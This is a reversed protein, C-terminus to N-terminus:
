ASELLEMPLDEMLAADFGLRRFRRRGIEVGVLIRQEGVGISGPSTALRGLSNADESCAAVALSAPRTGLAM